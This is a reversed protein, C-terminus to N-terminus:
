TTASAPRPPAWSSSGARPTGTSAGGGIRIDREGAAERARELAEGIGGTVFHFMRPGASQIAAQMGPGTLERLAALTGDGEEPLPGGGLSESAAVADPHRLPAADLSDLYELATSAALRVADAAAAREHLPDGM